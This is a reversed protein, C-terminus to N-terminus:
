SGITFDAIQTGDAQEDKVYVGELFTHDIYDFEVMMKNAQVLADLYTPSDIVESTFTGDGYGNKHVFKVPGEIAVEDLNDERYDDYYSSCSHTVRVDADEGLRDRIRKNVYEYFEDFPLLKKNTEDMEIITDVTDLLAHLNSKSTLVSDSRPKVHQSRLQSEASEVVEAIVDRIEHDQENSEQFEGDAILQLKEVLPQVDVDVPLRDADRRLTEIKESAKKRTRDKLDQLSEEYGKPKDSM